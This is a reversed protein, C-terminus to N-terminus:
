TGRRKENCYAQQRTYKLIEHTMHTKVKKGRRLFTNWLIHKLTHLLTYIGMYKPM